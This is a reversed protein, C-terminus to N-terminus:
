FRPAYFSSTFRQRFQIVQDVVLYGDVNYSMELAGLLCEYGAHRHTPLFSFHSGQRARFSEMYQDVVEDPEGSFSTMKLIIKFNELFNV